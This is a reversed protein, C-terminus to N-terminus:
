KPAEYRLNCISHLSGRHKGTYHCHDCIKQYSKGEILQENLEEKCIHCIKNNKTHNKKEKKTHNKEKEKKGKKMTIIETAQERLNSCCKRM